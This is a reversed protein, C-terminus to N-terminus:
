MHSWALSPAGDAFRPWCLWSQPHCAAPVARPLVQCVARPRHEGSAPAVRHRLWTTATTEPTRAGPSSLKKWLAPGRPQVSRLFPERPDAAHGHASGVAAARVNFWLSHADGARPARSWRPGALRLRAASQLLGAPRNRGSLNDPEFGWTLASHGPRSAEGRRRQDCRWGDSLARFFVCVSGHLELFSEFM